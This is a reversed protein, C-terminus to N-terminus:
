MDCATNPNGQQGGNEKHFCNWIRKKKENVNQINTSQMQSWHKKPNNKLRMKNVNIQSSFEFKKITMYLANLENPLQEAEGKAAM